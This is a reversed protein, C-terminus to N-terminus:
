THLAEFSDWCTHLHLGIYSFTDQIQVVTNDCFWVISQRVYQFGGWTNEVVGTYVTRHMLYDAARRDAFSLSFVVVLLFVHVFVEQIATKVLKDLRNRAVIKRLKKKNLAPKFSVDKRKKYEESLWIQSYGTFLLDVNVTTFHSFTLINLQMEQCVTTLM